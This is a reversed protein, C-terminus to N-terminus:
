RMAFGPQWALPKIARAAGRMSFPIMKGDSFSVHKEIVPYLPPPLFSIALDYEGYDYLSPLASEVANSVYQFISSDNKRKEAPLTNLYKQHKRKAWLRRLAIGIHLEKVIDKIPREICTYEPIEPLLNVYSPILKMFEGTHQNVFLDVDVKQPDLSSLLGLM